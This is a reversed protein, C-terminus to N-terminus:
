PRSYGFPEVASAVVPLLALELPMKRAELESVIHYLYRQGRAFTREMYDPHNVYWGMQVDIAPESEDPLAFGSRMRDFLDAYDVSPSAQATAGGGSSGESAAAEPQAAFRPDVPAQYDPPLAVSTALVPKAPEPARVPSSCASLLLPLTM